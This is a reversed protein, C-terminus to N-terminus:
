QALSTINANLASVVDSISVVEDDLSEWVGNLWQAVQNYTLQVNATSPTAQVVTPIQGKAQAAALVQQVTQM